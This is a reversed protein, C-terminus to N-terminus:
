SSDGQLILAVVSSQRQVIERGLHELKKNLDEVQDLTLYEVEPAAALLRGRDLYSVVEVSSLKRFVSEVDILPGFKRVHPM